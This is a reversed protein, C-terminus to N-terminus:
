VVSAVPPAHSCAEHGEQEVESSHSFPMTPPKVFKATRRGATYDCLSRASRSSRSSCFVTRSMLIGTLSRPLNLSTDCGFLESSGARRLHIIGFVSLHGLPRHRVSPFRPGRRSRRWGASSWISETAPGRNSGARSVLRQVGSICRLGAATVSRRVTSRLPSLNDSCLDALGGGGGSRPPRAQHACRANVRM